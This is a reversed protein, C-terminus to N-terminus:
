TQTYQGHHGCFKHCVHHFQYTIVPEVAVTLQHRRFHLWYIEEPRWSNLPSESTQYFEKLYTVFDQYLRQMVPICRASIVFVRDVYAQQDLLAEVIVDHTSLLQQIRPLNCTLLRIDVRSLIIMQQPPLNDPLLQLAQQIHYFCSFVRYAQQYYQNFRPVEAPTQDLFLQKQYNWLVIQRLNLCDGLVQRIEEVTIVESRDEYRIQPAYLYTPIQHLTHMAPTNLNTRDYFDRIFGYLVLYGLGSNM